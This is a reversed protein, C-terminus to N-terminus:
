WGGMNGVPYATTQTGRIVIMSPGGQQPIQSPAMSPLIMRGAAAQPAAAYSANPSASMRSGMNRSALYLNSGGLNRATVTAGRRDNANALGASDEVKRMVLSISGMKDAIALRQADYLSVALTATKGVKPAGASEDSLQDIALVQVGQLIVDSRLDDNNAGEGAIKRTLIVDVMTGPLVFGSVGVVADVPISIARMGPQLLSALTARGEPGTVKSALVPEGPVIPRVVARGYKLAERLSTFAGNPVSGSPWDKLAVNQTTLADAFDMPQTAVVIKTLKQQKTVEVQQSEMGSFWTNALFVAFLGIAVAIALLIWNRNQM